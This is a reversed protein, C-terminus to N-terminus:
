NEYRHGALYIQSEIFQKFPIDAALLQQPFFSPRSLGPLTNTELFCPGEQTLIMDTRSYGYCCLAIHADLALKQASELEASNLVAPTIEKVGAGLYKGEYDFSFGENLIIESAPLAILEDGDQIVGVTLERGNIFNELLYSEFSDKKILEIAVYLQEISNVIHLGCSSGSGTPKFVIKKHQNLFKEFQSLFNGVQSTKFKIEAPLKIETNSIHEKALNKEFAMKSASAGSGTFAIKNNEFLAQVEGNEGQAGHLGLFIIKDQFYDIAENLSEAFPSSKPVFEKVFVDQHDFLEKSSVKYLKENKDQFVLESFSYQQALNQASAVSVM